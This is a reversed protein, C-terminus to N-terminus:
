GVSTRSVISTAALPEQWDIALNGCWILHFVVGRVQAPLLSHRRTLLGVLVGLPVGDWAEDCVDSGIVDALNPRIRAGVIWDINDRLPRPLDHAVHYAHGMLKCARATVGFVYANEPESAFRSGKVDLVETSGDRCRFFFDPVHTRRTEGLRWHLRFPQPCVSVVCHRLDNFALHSMEYRSEYTVLDEISSMYYYGPKSWQGKYAAPARIPWRFDVWAAESVHAVKSPGGKMTKYGVHFDGAASVQLAVGAGASADM